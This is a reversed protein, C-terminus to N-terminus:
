QPKGGWSRGSPTAGQRWVRTRQGDHLPTLRQKLLNNPTTKGSPAQFKAVMGRLKPPIPRLLAMLPLGAAKKALQASSVRRNCVQDQVVQRLISRRMVQTCQDPRMFSEHINTEARGTPGRQCLALSWTSTREFIIPWTQGPMPPLAFSSLFQFIEEQGRGHPRLQRVLM